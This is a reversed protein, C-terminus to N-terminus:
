LHNHKPGKEDKKTELEAVPEGIPVMGPRRHLDCTYALAPAPMTSTQWFGHWTIPRDCYDCRREM